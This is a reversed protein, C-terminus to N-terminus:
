ALTEGCYRCVRPVAEPAEAASARPTDATTPAPPADCKIETSVPVITGQEARLGIDRLMHANLHSLARWDQRRRRALALRAKLANILTTLKM